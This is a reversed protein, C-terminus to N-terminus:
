DDGNTKYRTLRNASREIMASIKNKERETYIEDEDAKEIIKKIARQERMLKEYEADTIIHKRQAAKITKEQDAQQKKYTAGQAFAGTSIICLAALLIIHKM